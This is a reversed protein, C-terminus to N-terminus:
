KMDSVTEYESGSPLHCAVHHGWMAENMADLNIGRVPFYCSACVAAYLEHTWPRSLPMGTEPDLVTQNTANALRSTKM